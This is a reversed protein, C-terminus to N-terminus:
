RHGEWCAWSNDNLPLSHPNSFYLARGVYKTHSVRLGVGPRVTLDCHWEQSPPVAM